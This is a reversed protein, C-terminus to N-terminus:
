QNKKYKGGVCIILVPKFLAYADYDPLYYEQRTAESKKLLLIYIVLLNKM